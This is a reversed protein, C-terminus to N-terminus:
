GAHVAYWPPGAKTIEIEPAAAKATRITIGKELVIGPGTVEVTGTGLNTGGIRPDILSTDAETRALIGTELIQDTGEIGHRAVGTMDPKGVTTGVEAKRGITSLTPGDNTTPDIPDVTIVGPDLIGVPQDADIMIQATAIEVVAEIEIRDTTGTMMARAHRHDVGTGM